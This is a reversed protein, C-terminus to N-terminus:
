KLFCSNANHHIKPVCGTNEKLPVFGQDAARLFICCTIYYFQYIKKELVIVQRLPVGQVGIIVEYQQRVETNRGLGMGSKFQWCTFKVQKWSGM